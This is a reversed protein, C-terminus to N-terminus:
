TYTPSGENRPLSKIWSMSHDLVERRHQDRASVSQERPCPGDTGAPDPTRPPDYGSRRLVAALSQWRGMMPSDADAIVALRKLDSARLEVPLSVLLNVIGDKDKLVFEDFLGHALLLNSVVHKDDQGEVLIVADARMM